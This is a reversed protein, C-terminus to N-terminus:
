EDDSELKRRLHQRQNLTSGHIAIDDMAAKKTKEGNPRTTTKVSINGIESQVFNEERKLVAREVEQIRIGLTTCQEFCARIVQDKNNQQVLVQVSMALRNKKAYVPYQSVDLVGTISRINDLGVSLDEPTQDDIEFQLQVITDTDWKTSENNEDKFVMLRLINSLGPFTKSGFGVGTHQLEGITKSPSSGDPILYKLIAAGTPTVREGEVEDRYFSFQKLLTATAPAPVPLKGHATEVLGNGLPLASVSWTCPLPQVQEILYASCVVDAISDWAGVEHFHIDDIPIGHVEAEASALLALIDLAHKKVASALKSNNLTDRIFAYSRHHQNNTQIEKVQFFTGTLVGDNKQQSQLEVMDNFGALSLQEPLFQRYEPFVDLMAGVFMNGSVGGVPDLHIHM